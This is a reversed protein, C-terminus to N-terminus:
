IHILSLDENDETREIEVGILSLFWPVDTLDFSIPSFLQDKLSIRGKEIVGELSEDDYTNEEKGELMWQVLGEISSKPLLFCSKGKHIEITDPSDVTIWEKRDKKGLM